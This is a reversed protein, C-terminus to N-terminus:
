KFKEYCRTHQRNGLPMVCYQYYDYCDSVQWGAQSVHVNEEQWRWLKRWCLYGFSYKRLPEHFLVNSLPPPCGIVRSLNGTTLPHEELFSQTLVTILPDKRFNPSVGPCALQNFRGLVFSPVGVACSSDESFVRSSRMKVLGCPLGIKERFLM